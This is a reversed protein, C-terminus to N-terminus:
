FRYFSSATRCSLWPLDDSFLYGVFGAQDEIDFQYSLTDCVQRIDADPNSIRVGVWYALTDCWDQDGILDEFREPIDM